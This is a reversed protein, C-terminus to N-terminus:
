FQDGLMNGFRTLIKRLSGKLGSQLERLQEPDYNHDFLDLRGEIMTQCWYFESKLADFNKVMSVDEESIDPVIEEVYQQQHHIQKTTHGFVITKRSSKKHM